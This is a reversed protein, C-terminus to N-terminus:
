PLLLDKDPHYNKEDVCWVHDSRLESTMWTKIKTYAFNQSSSPRLVVLDDSCLEPDHSQWLGFSGSQTM